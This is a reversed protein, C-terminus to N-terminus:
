QFKGSKEIIKLIDNVDRELCQLCQFWPEGNGKMLEELMKMHEDGTGWFAEPNYSRIMYIAMLYQSELLKWFKTVYPNDMAKIIAKHFAIDARLYANWEEVGKSNAHWMEEVHGRLEEEPVCHNTICFMVSERELLTRISFLAKIEKMTLNHVYTFRNIERVLIGETELLRLAERITARSVEFENALEEEVIREGQAYMGNIIRERLIDATQQGLTVKRLINKM